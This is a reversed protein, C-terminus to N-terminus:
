LDRTDAAERRLVLSPRRAAYGGDGPDRQPAARPGREAQCAAPARRARGALAPESAVAVFRAPWRPLPRRGGPGGPSCGRPSSCSRSCAAAGAGRGAGPAAADATSVDRRLRFLTIALGVPVLTALWVLSPTFGRAEADGLRLAALLVGGALGLAGLVAAYALPAYWLVQADAGLGERAIVV